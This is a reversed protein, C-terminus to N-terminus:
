RAGAWLRVVRQFRCRSCRLWWRQHRAPAGARRELATQQLLMRQWRHGLVLCVALRMAARPTWCRTAGPREISRASGAALPRQWCSWVRLLARSLWPWRPRVAVFLIGRAPVYRSAVAWGARELNQIWLGALDPFPTRICQLGPRSM